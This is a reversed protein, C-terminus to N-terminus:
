PDDRRRPAAAPLPHPYGWAPYYPPLEHSYRERYLLMEAAPRWYPSGYYPYYVRPQYRYAYPDGRDNAYTIAAARGHGIPEGGAAAAGSAPISIAIIAATVAMIGTRAM